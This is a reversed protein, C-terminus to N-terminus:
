HRCFAPAEVGYATRYEQRLRHALAKAEVSGEVAILAIEALQIAVAQRPPFGTRGNVRVKHWMPDRAWRSDALKGAAEALQCCGAVLDHALGARLEDYEQSNELRNELRRHEAWIRAFDPSYSEMGTMVAMVGSYIMVATLAWCGFSLVRKGHRPHQCSLFVAIAGVGVVSGAKLAAVGRWGFSALCWAALPNGEYVLGVRDRLLLWTLVLDGLNLAVFL